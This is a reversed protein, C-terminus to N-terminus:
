KREFRFKELISKSDNVIDKKEEDNLVPKELEEIFEKYTKDVVKHLFFEWRQKDRDEESVMTFLEIVFSHLLGLEIYEDM